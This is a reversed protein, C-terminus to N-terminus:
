KGELRFYLMGDSEIPFSYFARGVYAIVADIEAETLVSKWASMSTGPLGERIVQKMQERTLGHMADVDNLNRPHPQLFSGIWNRGTGDAAHCFACNEQFLAEGKREVESLNDIEPIRDHMAYLSASAMGDVSENKQNTDLLDDGPSFHNRPYSVTRTEWKLTGNMVYARDHCSICSTLFMKKGVVQINTLEDWAVDLPIEGLAFPYAAIYREHNAWGNEVTHYRTNEAKDIMFEQRVFGAVAAIEDVSLVSDFAMMATGKRGFKISKMMREHSLDSPSTATFDVPKPDLATAALTHADGSYGHCYYCRFNYVKRGLEHNQSNATSSPLDVQELIGHANGNLSPDLKSCGVLTVV